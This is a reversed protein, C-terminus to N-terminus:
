AHASRDPRERDAFYQHEMRALTHVIQTALDRAGRLGSASTEPRMMELRVEYEDGTHPFDSYADQRRGRLYVCLVRAEPVAQVIQGVGYAFDETDVRGTRSRGGEPFISVLDGGRLLYAIRGLTRRVEERSGGRTIYVCKGLFSALRWFATRSFNAKEPVSWPFRSYQRLYAPVPALAWALVVTDLLTLHNACILVPGPAADLLRAFRARVAAADRVTLRKVGRIWVIAWLAVLPFLLYSTWRQVALLIRDRRPIMDM